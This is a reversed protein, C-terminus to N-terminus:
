YKKENYYKLMKEKLTLINKIWNSMQYWAADFIFYGNSIQVKKWNPRQRM